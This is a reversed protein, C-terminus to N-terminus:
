VGASIVDVGTDALERLRDRGVGGSVEVVARSGIKRVAESIEDPKWIIWCSSIWARMWPRPSKKLVPFRLRSGVSILFMPGRPKWPGQLAAPPPLTIIRSCFAMSFGMRHNHAGGVRVAYKDLVRWGPITKRTDVLRVSTGAIEKVHARVHTAVGSMRQLFNLATREGMLLVQLSSFVEAMMMGHDLADGDNCHTVFEVRPDLKEFVRRAVDLGAAVLKQKAMIRGKGPLVIGGIFATSIDGSGIDEDLALDILVDLRGANVDLLFGSM